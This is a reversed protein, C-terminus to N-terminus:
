EYTDGKIQPYYCYVKNREKGINHFYEPPFVERCITQAKPCRPAFPCGMFRDEISPVKGSISKLKKGRKEKSPMADILANTYPHLACYLTDGQVTNEEIIKGAYMVFFRSCFEQIISLEHSIFLISTKYKQNMELLLSIIRKQNEEDLASTLEDALLLKPRRIAAITIMVRQCMGRSLQHPYADFIKEPEEFGLLSLMELANQKNDTKSLEMMETIQKGVKMLPNLSQRVDQFVMGIESGMIRCLHKENLATLSQGNFIIEGDLIRFGLPLLNMIALATMTKGCGSEGALGTIEGEKISFSINDIAKLTNKGKKIGVTLNKVELLAM